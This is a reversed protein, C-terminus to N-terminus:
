DNRGGPNQAVGSAPPHLMIQRLVETVDHKGTPLTAVPFLENVGQDILSAVKQIAIDNPLKYIDTKTGITAQLFHQRLRILSVLILHTWQGFAEVGVKSQLYAILSGKSAHWRVMSLLGALRVSGTLTFLRACAEVPIEAIALRTTDQRAQDISQMALHQIYLIESLLRDVCGEIAYDEFWHRIREQAETERELAIEQRRQQNQLELTKVSTRLAARSAIVSAVIAAVAPICYKGIELLAALVQQMRDGM